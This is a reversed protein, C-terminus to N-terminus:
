QPVDVSDSDLAPEYQLYALQELRLDVIVMVSPDLTSTKLDNAIQHRLLPYRNLAREAQLPPLRVLTKNDDSLELVIERRGASVSDLRTLDISKISLGLQKARDMVQLAIPLHVLGFVQPLDKRVFFPHLPFQRGKADVAMGEQHGSLAVPEVVAYDIELTHPPLRSVRVETMLPSKLLLEQAQTVSLDYLGLSSEVSLGLLQALYDTPLPGPQAIATLRYQPHYRRAEHFLQFVWWSAFSGGSVLLTSLAIWLVAKRFPIENKDM